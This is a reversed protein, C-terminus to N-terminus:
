RVCRGKAPPHSVMHFVARCARCVRRGTLRAIIDPRSLEFNLVADLSIGESELHEQLVEAQTLTRPFGDLIFGGRCLLCGKREHIMEWVTMDPVLEGSRMIEFASKMSPTQQAPDLEGAARFVDGTSLHCAGLYKRLLAAQTGKGVGPAGLLALRWPRAIEGPPVSCRADPGRLWAARDNEM